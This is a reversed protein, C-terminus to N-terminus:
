LSCGVALLLCDPYLFFGAVSDKLMKADMKIQM